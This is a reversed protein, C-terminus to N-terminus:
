LDFLANMEEDTVSLAEIDFPATAAEYALGEVLERTKPVHEIRVFGKVDDIFEHRIRPSRASCRDCIYYSRMGTTRLNTILRMDNSCYPCTVVSSM